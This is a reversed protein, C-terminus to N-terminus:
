RSVGSAWEEQIEKLVKKSMTRTIGDLDLESNITNHNILNVNIKSTTYRDISKGKAIDLMYKIDTESLAKATDKTNKDISDLASTIDDVGALKQLNEASYKDMIGEIENFTDGVSDVFNNGWSYGKDFAKKSWGEEFPNYKNAVEDMAKGVDIYEGKQGRANNALNEAVQASAYLGSTDIEVGPLRNLKEAINAVGEIISSELDWFWAKVNLFGNKFATVFNKATASAGTSIADWTLQMLEGFNLVAEKAVNLGGCIGGVIESNTVGVKHLVYIIATISAILVLFPWNAVTWAAASKVANTVMYTGLAVAIGILVPEVVSWNDIILNAGWEFVKFTAMAVNRLFIISNSLGQMFVKGTDSNLFKNMEKYVEQFAYVGTNKIETWAQAWTMPMSEFQKNIDNTASLMANKVIEATIQGDSAMERIKGIDVDLYDAITQIINPASEFVANLEEGRLVGSGLAQTLQLSASQMEATSAGAIVFSKNLNEAFQIAQENNDWVSGARLVLKSVVDATAMYEGRSRQASAFIQDQLEKLETESDVLMNLRAQTQTYQDGTNILNKLGQIGIYASVIGRIASFLRNSLQISRNLSSNFSEQENTNRNIGTRTNNVSDKLREQQRSMGNIDSESQRLLLHSSELLHNSQSIESNFRQYTIYLYIMSIARITNLISDAEVNGNRLANNFMGQQSTNQVLDYGIQQIETGTSQILSTSEVIETNLNQCTNVTSEMTHDLSHATNNIGNIGANVATLSSDVSSTSDLTFAKDIVNGAIEAKYIVADMTNAINILTSSMRDILNVSSTISAM